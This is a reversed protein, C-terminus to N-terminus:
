WLSSPESHALAVAGIWAVGAQRLKLACARFTHGHTTVDDVVLVSLGSLRDMRRPPVELAWCLTELDPRKETSHTKLLADRLTPVAVRVSLEDTLVTPINVGNRAAVREPDGPVPIILDVRSLLQPPIFERLIQGIEGAVLGFAAEKLQRIFVSWPNSSLRDGSWKYVGVAHVEDVEPLYAGVALHPRLITNRRYGDQLPGFRRSELRPGPNRLLRLREQALTRQFGLIDAMRLAEIADGWRGLATLHSGLKYYAEGLASRMDQSGPPGVSRLWEIANDVQGKVLAKQAARLRYVALDAM